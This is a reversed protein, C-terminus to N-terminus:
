FGSLFMQARKKEFFLSCVIYVSLVDIKQHFFMIINKPQLSLFFLLLLLLLPAPPPPPFSRDISLFGKINFFISRDRDRAFKILNKNDMMMMMM